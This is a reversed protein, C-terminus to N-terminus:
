MGAVLYWGGFVLWWIGSFVLWWIGVVLYRFQASM